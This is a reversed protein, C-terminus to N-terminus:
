ITIPQLLGEQNDHSNPSSLNTKPGGIRWHIKKQEKEGKNHTGGGGGLADAREGQKPLNFIRLFTFSKAHYTRQPIRKWRPPERISSVGRKWTSPLIRQCGQIRGQLIFTFYPLSTNKWNIPLIAPSFYNIKLPTSLNEFSTHSIRHNLVIHALPRQDRWKKTVILYTKSKLNSDM